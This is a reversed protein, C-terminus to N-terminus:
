EKRWISAGICDVKLKAMGVVVQSLAPHNEDVRQLGEIRPHGDPCFAETSNTLRVCELTPNAAVKAM